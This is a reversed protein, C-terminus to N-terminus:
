RIINARRYSIIAPIRIGGLWDFVNKSRMDHIQSGSFENDNQHDHDNQKPRPTQRIDAAFQALGNVIEPRSQLGLVVGFRDDWRGRRILIVFDGSIKIM